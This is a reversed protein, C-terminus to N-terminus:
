RVSQHTAMNSPRQRCFHRDWSEATTSLISSDVSECHSMVLATVPGLHEVASTVLQSPVDAEALDSSLLVVRSGLTRRQDAVKEPDTPTREHGLRDDYPTWYSLALDWGDRTLGVALGAGISRSRGVATLLAVRSSANM